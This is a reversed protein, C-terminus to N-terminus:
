FPECMPHDFSRLRFRQRRAEEPLGAPAGPHIRAATTRVYDVRSAQREESLM